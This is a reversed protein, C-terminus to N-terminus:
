QRRAGRSLITRCVQRDDFPLLRGAVEQYKEAGKGAILVAARPCARAAHIAYTIAARREPQVTVKGRHAAIGQLIEATIATVEEDRPNDATLVIHDAFQAAVEGMAARKNRDRKGGCGFVVWRPTAFSLAALSARLAEPTHAYDVIVLPSKHIIEMRGAGVKVKRWDATAIRVSLLNEAALLAAAFNLALHPAFFNLQGLRQQGNMVVALEATLNHSKLINVQMRPHNPTHMPQHKAQAYDYLWLQPHTVSLGYRRAQAMVQQSIILLQACACNATILSWKSAFYDQRTPHFDGHDDSFSTFIVAQCRLPTIKHLALAHSSVELVVYRVGQAQSWALIKFLLDPDPTTLPNSCLLQHDCFIGNSGSLVTKHRRQTLLQALMTATSTKGNTGTIGIISLHQQPHAHAAACLWAWSRRANGVVLLPVPFKRAEAAIGARDSILLCAGGAVARELFVNGDHTRGRLAIFIDGTQLRRTDVCLQGGRTATAAPFRAMNDGRLEGADRLHTVIEGVTLPPPPPFNVAAM